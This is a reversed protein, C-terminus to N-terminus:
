KPAGIAVGRITINFSVTQGNTPVSICIGLPLELVDGVEVIGSIAQRTEQPLFLDPNDQSVAVMMPYNSENRCWVSHMKPARVGGCPTYPFQGFDFSMPAPETCGANGYVKLDGILPEPPLSAIATGGIVVQSM